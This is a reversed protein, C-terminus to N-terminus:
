RPLSETAAALNRYWNAQQGHGLQEHCQALNLISRRLEGGPVQGLHLARRYGEEAGKWDERRFLEDAREWGGVSTPGSMLLKGARLLRDLRFLFPHHPDAVAVEDRIHSLDEWRGLDTLALARVRVQREGVTGYRIADAWTDILLEPDERLSEYAQALGFHPEPRAPFIAISARFEQVAEPLRGSQRLAEGFNGHSKASRPATRVQEQFLTLEDRWVSAQRVSAISLACALVGVASGAIWRSPIRSLLIAALLCTFISPLYALRDGMISGIPVVFNSVPAFCLAYGLAILAFAPFVHRSRWAVVTTVSLIALFGLWMPDLFSKVATIQAYSHDTSLWLPLAQDRLFLVQVAGATLVREVLSVGAAPNEVYAIPVVESSLAGARLLFWLVLVGCPLPLSRKDFRRGEVPFLADVVFALPLFAIASEKCWLVMLYLLGALFRRRSRYAILFALGFIAGLSEYRATVNAVVEAHVPHAAWLIAAAGTVWRPLPLRSLWLYVLFSAAAHLLINVAHFSVPLDFVGTLHRALVANLVLSWQGLPRYLGTFREYPSYFGDSFLERLNWPHALMPSRLIFADDYVLGHRLTGAYVVAALVAAALGPAISRLRSGAEPESRV